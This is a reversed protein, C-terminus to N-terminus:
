LSLSADERLLVHAIDGVAVVAYISLSIFPHPLSLLQITLARAGNLVM